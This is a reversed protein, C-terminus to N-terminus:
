FHTTDRYRGGRSSCWDCYEDTSSDHHVRCYRAKCFKCIKMRGLKCDDCTVGCDYCELKLHSANKDCAECWFNHCVCCFRKSFCYDCLDNTQEGCSVCPTSVREALSWGETTDPCSDCKILDTIIGAGKFVEALQPATTSLITKPFLPAGLLQIKRITPHSNAGETYAYNLDTDFDDASEFLDQRHSDKSSGSSMSSSSPSSSRGKYLDKILTCLYKDSWGHTFSLGLFSLRYETFLLRLMDNDVTCWDLYLTRLSSKISKLEWLLHVSDSVNDSMDLYHIIGENDFLLKKFIPSTLALNTLSTLSLYPTLSRLIVDNSFITFVDTRTAHLNPMSYDM